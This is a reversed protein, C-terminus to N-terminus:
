SPCCIWTIIENNQNPGIDATVQGGAIYDGQVNTVEWQVEGTLAALNDNTVHVEVQGTDWDPVASLLLPAFFNRAMHHLAKWRGDYDLSSWSAVPWCDNLQWYLTGM